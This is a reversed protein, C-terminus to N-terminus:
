GKILHDITVGLERSVMDLHVKSVGSKEWHQVVQTSTGIKRAFSAISFGQEKVLRTFRENEKEM